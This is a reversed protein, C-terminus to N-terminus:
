KGRKNQNLYECLDSLIKENEDILKEKMQPDKIQKKLEMYQNNRQVARRIAENRDLSDNDSKKMRVILVYVTDPSLNKYFLRVKFEKVEKLGAMKKNVTTMSKSKEDNNENIGNQLNQLMKIVKEYYEEPLTKIDHEICINGSNTTAFIINKKLTKESEVEVFIDEKGKELLSNCMDQKFLLMEIEEEIYKQMEEDSENLKHLEEQLLCLEEELYKILGTIIPFFNTYEPQPLADFIDEEDQLLMIAEYYKKRLQEINEM